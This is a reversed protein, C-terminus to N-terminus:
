CVTQLWHWLVAHFYWQPYPHFENLFQSNALYKKDCHTSILEDSSSHKTFSAKWEQFVFHNDPCIVIHSPYRKSPWWSSHHWPHRWRSRACFTALASFLTLKSNVQGNPFCAIQSHSVLSCLGIQPVRCLPSIHWIWPSLQWPWCARILSSTTSLGTDTRILWSLLDHQMAYLHKSHMFVSTASSLKCM